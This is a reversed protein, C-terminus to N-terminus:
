FMLSIVQSVKQGFDIWKADKLADSYRHFLEITQGLDTDVEM